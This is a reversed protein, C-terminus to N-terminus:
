TITPFFNAYHFQYGSNTGTSYLGVEHDAPADASSWMITKTEPVTRLKKRMTRNKSSSRYRRKMYTKKSRFVRRRRTFRRRRGYCAKAYKPMEPEILNLKRKGLSGM